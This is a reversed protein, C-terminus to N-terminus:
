PQGDGQAFLYFCLVKGLALLCCNKTGGLALMVAMHSYHTISNRAPVTDEWSTVTSQGEAAFVSKHAPLRDWAHTGPVIDM